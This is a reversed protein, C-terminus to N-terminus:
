AAQEEINHAAFDSFVTVPVDRHIFTLRRRLAVHALILVMGASQMLFLSGTTSTSCVLDTYPSNRQQLFWRGFMYVGGSIGALIGVGRSKPNQTMGAIMLPLVFMSVRILYTGFFVQEHCTVPDYPGPDLLYGFGFTKDIVISILVIMLFGSAMAQGEGQMMLLIVNILFLWYLALDWQIEKTLWLADIMPRLQDM